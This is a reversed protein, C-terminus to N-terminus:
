GRGGGALGEVREVDDSNPARRSYMLRAYEEAFGQLGPELAALERATASGLWRGTASELRSRVELFIGRLRARLGEYRYPPKFDWVGGGGSGARGQSDRPERRAAVLAAVALAVLVAAVAILLAAGPDPFAGALGATVPDGAAPAGAGAGAAADAGAAAPQPTDPVVHHRTVIL